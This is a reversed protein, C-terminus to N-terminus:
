SFSPNYGGTGEFIARIKFVDAVGLTIEKDAFASGYVGAYSGSRDGSVKLYEEKDITKVEQM